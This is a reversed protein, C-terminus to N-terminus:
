ASSPMRSTSLDRPSPSTYLLCSLFPDILITQTPTEFLLCAHGLFRMRLRGAPIAPAQNQPIPAACMARLVDRETPALGLTDAVKNLPMPETRLRALTDLRKDNLPIQLLLQGSQALRPTSMFFARETPRTRHILIQHHSALPYADSLMEEFVHIAAHHNIDYVLEVLGRLSAPVQEYFEHLSFGYAEDQLKANFQGM